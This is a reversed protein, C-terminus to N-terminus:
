HSTRFILVEFPPLEYTRPIIQQSLIDIQDAYPNNITQSRDTTNIVFHYDVTSDSRTMIEVDPNYNATSLGIQQLFTMIDTSSLETGIYYAFGYGFNNQTIAANGHYFIAGSYQALTLATTPQILDCITHANLIQHDTTTLIVQKDPPLADSEDITIGLLDQLYGPRGGIIFNDATDSVASLFNTIFHGGQQVYAKIQESFATEIVYLNSAIVYDYQSFDADISIITVPIGLQYLADYYHYFNQVYDLKVTPGICNELGWYSSWDFIIAIKATIKTQLLQTPLSAVENGLQAIERFIRNDTSGTYPMIASHFKEAGNRSQKLQFFLVSNAGHALAQYSLMRMEGPRKLANYTQWNQQNPTQEMLLFPQEKLGYMLDHQMATYSAPTDLSPYNDWSVIDLEKAWKFYDLDKQSGMLNTTIPTKPDFQRIINKEMKFNALLSDSQFHRYDVTAGGLVPKGNSFIDNLRTPPMIENWQHYTHSWFNSNWATNLADLSDYKNQLWHRFEVACNDCYCQGGYENSIHWYVLNDLNSYREAIKTVLKMAQSQFQPSNPCANHRKGHQQRISYTNVRSVEPYQQVLWAPLAATATALIIKFHHKQLLAVIKDLQDFHYQNEATELLAWSFVNITATNIHATELKKLDPEWSSEPWQEPNYDGGFLVPSDLKIM